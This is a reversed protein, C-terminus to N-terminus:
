KATEKLVEAVSAILSSSGTLEEIRASHEESKNWGKQQKRQWKPRHSM